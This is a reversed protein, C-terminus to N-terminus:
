TACFCSYMSDSFKSINGLFAHAELLRDLDNQQKQVKFFVQSPEKLGAMRKAFEHYQNSTERLRKQILEMELKLSKLQATTNLKWHM